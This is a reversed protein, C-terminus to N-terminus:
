AGVRISVRTIDAVSTLPYPPVGASDLGFAFAAAGPPTATENTM